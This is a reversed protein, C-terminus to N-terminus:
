MERGMSEDRQAEEGKGKGREEERGGERRGYLSTLFVTPLQAFFLISGTSIDMDHLCHM